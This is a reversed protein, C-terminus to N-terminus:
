LRVTIWGLSIIAYVLYLCVLLIGQWHMFRRRIIAPIVAIACVLLCFPIDFSSAYPSVPMMGGSSLVCVPLVFTIDIISAGIVNGYSLFKQKKAIAAITTALEPLSTGLALMITSVARESMGVSVALGGGGNVLLLAGGFVAATGGAFRAANVAIEKKGGKIPKKEAKESKQSGTYVCSCIFAIFLLLLLVSPLVGFCKLRAFSFMVICATLLLAGNVFFERRKIFVPIFVLSLAMILAVNASVSGVVNGIAMEFRGERTAILSVFLEPLTTALSVVTAGIVAKPVGVVESVWLASDVFVNGGVAILLLGLAFLFVALATSM